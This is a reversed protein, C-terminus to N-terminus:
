RGIVPNLATEVLECDAPVPLRWIRCGRYKPQFIASGIVPAVHLLQLALETHVDQAVPREALLFPNLLARDSLLLPQRDRCLRLV